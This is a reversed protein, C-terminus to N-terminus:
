SRFFDQFDRKLFDAIKELVSIKPERQGSLYKSITAEHIGAGTAVKASQGRREFLTVTPPGFTHCGGGEM